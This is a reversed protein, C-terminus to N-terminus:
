KKSNRFWSLLNKIKRQFPLCCSDVQLAREITYGGVKFKLNNGCQYYEFEVHFGVFDPTSEKIKVM